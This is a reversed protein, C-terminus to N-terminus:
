EELDDGEDDDAEDVEGAQEALLWKNGRRKEGKSDLVKAGMKKRARYLQSKSIGEGEAEAVIEKYNTPGNAELFEVLWAVPDVEEPSPEYSPAKGYKFQVLDDTTEMEIGISDPYPGLNTKVLDLRRPGNLSFQKGNQIVSLGMVSRAMATINGSGRFDHINMGPLNLQGTSPKRLHHLVLLGADATTALGGLYALLRATDEVSNQGSSSISSYSDIIILEPKLTAAMDMLRDQWKAATLDLLEGNGAMLLYLKHRNLQMKVARENNVQPIAEADVYIVKGLKEVPAGDPWVGGHIVSRALDMVFYSKGTGQFAGLLSIMGRPLWGPWLWRVPPLTEALEALTPYHLPQTSDLITAWWLRAAEEDNGAAAEVGRRLFERGDLGIIVGDYQGSIRETHLLIEKWPWKWLSLDIQDGCEEDTAFYKYLLSAQMRDTIM